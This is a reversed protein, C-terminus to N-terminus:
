TWNNIECELIDNVQTWDTTTPDGTYNTSILVEIDLPTSGDAEYGM